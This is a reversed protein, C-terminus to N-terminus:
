EDEDSGDTEADAAAAPAEDRTAALVQPLAESASIGKPLRKIIVQEMVVKENPVDRSNKPVSAIKKVLDVGNSGSLLEGFITHKQNLHPTPVETIFFQSGNTNPGSNAKALLGPRDFNVSPDFEDRFRYGPDGTGNGRPCGAQIMFNSIVRHFTLGDYYPRGTTREGTSIDRFERTGDALNVFNRVTIPAIDPFLKIAFDGHNTKILAFYDVSDDLEPGRDYAPQQASAALPLALAAAM